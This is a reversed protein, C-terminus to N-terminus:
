KVSPVSQWAVEKAHREKGANNQKKHRSALSVFSKAWEPTGSAHIHTYSAFLNNRVFGDMLGNVGRGRRLALVYGPGGPGIVKSHHFEHGRITTGAPFFPNKNVVTAEVYGHGQPRAHLEVEVPIVGAMERLKGEIRIGRSLYMFGACEAYVPLGDNIAGHIDDMLGRNACLEELHLEPFGGGIYLGEIDPLRPSTLSNILMLEAGADKLAELNEPYYFNFVSDHIIGIRAGVGKKVGGKKGNVVYLERAERAIHMLGELNVNQEILGAIQEMIEQATESERFPILGLHRETIGLDRNRPIAGLVPMDCYREVADILKGKHREGSVNNLIVGAIPTEPEFEVYGKILAAVSRTMRACNVVLIVPSQLLRAMYASSGTGDSNVGDYLGMNGEVIAIDVGASAGAFNELVMGEDMLYLDLNRCNADSAASLWSPDIYDPGKKFPQVKLCRRRLAACLGISVVTKGSRGCPAAIMIRPPIKQADM